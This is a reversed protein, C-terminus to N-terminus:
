NKHDIYYNDDKDISQNNNGYVRNNNFQGNSYNTSEIVKASQSLM